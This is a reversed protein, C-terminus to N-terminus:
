GALAQGAVVDMAQLLEAVPDRDLGHRLLPAKQPLHHVVHELVAKRAQQDIGGMHLLNGPSLGVDLIRGPDRLQQLM